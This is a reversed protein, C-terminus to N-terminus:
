ESAYVLRRMRATEDRMCINSKYRTGSALRAYVNLTFPLTTVWPYLEQSSVSPGRIRAEGADSRKPGQALCM